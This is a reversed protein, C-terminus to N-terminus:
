ICVQFSKHGADIAVSIPGVSQAASQLSIESGHEVDRYSTLTAGICSTRYHCSEDQIFLSVILIICVISAISRVHAEYRYCEETDLGHNAEVYRFANDM